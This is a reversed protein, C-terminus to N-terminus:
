EIATLFDCQHSARGSTNGAKIESCNQDRNMLMRNNPRVRKLDLVM